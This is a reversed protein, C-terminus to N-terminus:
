ISIFILNPQIEDRYEVQFLDFDVGRLAHITEVGVHYIKTLGRIEILPHSMFNDLAYEAVVAVVAAAVAM